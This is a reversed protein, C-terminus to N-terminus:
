SKEGRVMTIKSGYFIELWVVDEKSLGDPLHWTAVARRFLDESFLTFSNTLEVTEDICAPLCEDVEISETTDTLQQTITGNCLDKSINLDDIGFMPM